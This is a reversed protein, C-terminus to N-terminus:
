QTLLLNITRDAGEASGMLLKIYRCAALAGGQSGTIGVTRAAGVAIAVLVGDADYLNNFTGDGAEAAQIGVSSSSLAAPLHLAAIRWPGLDIVESLTTSVSIDILVEITHRPSGLRSDM